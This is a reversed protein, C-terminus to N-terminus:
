TELLDELPRFGSELAHDQEVFGMRHAIRRAGFVFIALGLPRFLSQGSHAQLVCQRAGPHDIFRGGAGGLGLIQTIGRPEPKPPGARGEHVAVSKESRHGVATDRRHFDDGAVELGHTEVRRTRETEGAYFIVRELMPQRGVLYLDVIGIGVGPRDNM